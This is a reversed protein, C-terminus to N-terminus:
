ADCRGKGADRGSEIQHKGERRQKAADRQAVRSRSTLMLCMHVQHICRSKFSDGGMLFDDGFDDEAERERFVKDNERRARKAELAGERGVPKPGIMDEIRTNEEERARKRSARRERDLREADLERDYQQDSSLGSRGPLLPGHIPRNSSGGSTNAMSSRTAESVGERALRLDKSNVQLSNTFTWKYSTNSSSPNDAAQIGEYYTRPLRGRNWAKVFKRFYSCVVYTNMLRTPLRTVVVPGERNTVVYTALISPHTLVGMISQSSVYETRRRKSGCGLNTTRSFTTRRPSKKQAALFSLLARGQARGLVHAHNGAEHVPHCTSELRQSISFSPPARDLNKVAKDLSRLSKKSKASVCPYKVANSPCPIDCCM